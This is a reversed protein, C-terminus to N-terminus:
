DTEQSHVILLPAEVHHLVKETVSGLLWREFGGLGHSAVVVLDHEAAQELIGQVASTVRVLTRVKLDPITAALEDLYEQCVKKESEVAVQYASAPYPFYEVSRFLTLESGHLKALERARTLATESIKSGDLCVLIKGLAPSVAEDKSAKFVFVPKQSGRVVKTVVSGLLWRGIGGRGHSSLMISDIDDSESRELISEAPEGEKVTTVTQEPLDYESVSMKLYKESTRIFGSLDYAVPPPTAFDPYTYVASLPRFCSMLEIELGQKEAFFRAWPLAAEGTKSGDLPVLM